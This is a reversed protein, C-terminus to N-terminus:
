KDEWELFTLELGEKEVIVVHGGPPTSSTYWIHVIDTKSLACIEM